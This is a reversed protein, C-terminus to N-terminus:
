AARVPVDPDALREPDVTRGADIVRRAQVADRPRDVALL